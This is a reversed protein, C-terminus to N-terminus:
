AAKEELRALCKELDIGKGLVPKWLDGVKDLRKWTTKLTYKTPDLGKRVESWKLPTAVTAGKRPRVSYACALTQGRRNQLYDLYVAEGRESPHRELSTVDPLKQHVLHAIIKAFQVSQDTTYKAGLPIFIHLGTAGSTKCVSEAEAQELVAHVAQATKVVTEFDVGQPDLDMVCYDPHDLSQVRANWPNMEICGLNVLYLLTEKDQCLLYDISGEQDSGIPVTEIWDPADDVDKQYFDEGDIGNPFRHLSQPRDKLYKLIVPAMERYYEVIDAKTYGDDPFYVKDLNTFEIKGVRKRSSKPKASAELLQLPPNTEEDAADQHKKGNAHPESEEAALLKLDSHPVVNQTKEPRERCVETPKKDDRVGLFIPQRMIHDQTWERFSVEVVIQPKVWTVPSNTKPPVVFPSKEMTLPKLVQHMEMLQRTDLGGGTHGIYVFEKGEYVGLVLAGLGKRGGKPKTFGGIVAEQQLATKVKLWSHTRAGPQYESAGDKAIIGELGRARAALFLDIGREEVHESLKIYPSRPLLDKLRAKREALPTHLLNKGDAYLLDFVYYVLHGNHKQHYRQLLAFSSFGQDDTVVIEGDLVANTEVPALADAIEGYRENLSTNKRSYLRVTGNEIEAIARYGDWKIEFLWGPKAFPRDTLTAFMPVVGRPIRQAHGNSSVHARTHSRPHAQKKTRENKKGERKARSRKGENVEQLTRGTKVSAERMTVDEDSAFEDRVKVLLWANEEKSKMRRLSFEGRLKEGKLVLHMRGRELEGRLIKESREPDETKAAHYTGRDWVIVTGAGYNGEPINGEFTRYDFPHDETMMALRKDSPDLSPGKPVAWSKLVGDLELRFDYHLHSAAHKQVVFVLPQEPKRRHVKGSPEPTEDFARKTKYTQLPM